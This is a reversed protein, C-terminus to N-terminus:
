RRIVLVKGRRIQTSRLNNTTMIIEVTTHYKKAIGSLTEHNRVRHYILKKRTQPNPTNNIVPSSNNQISRGSDLRMYLNQYLDTNLVLSDKGSSSLIGISNQLAEFFLNGKLTYGKMTLHIGDRQALGNAQWVNMTNIGGSVNFWDYFLCGQDFAIKRVLASFLIGSKLNKRYRFMDQTTTLLISAQPAAFRIKNITEIIISEMKDPIYDKYLYDNTGFDVIALDIDLHPFHESFLQQEIIASYTAGGIGLNHYVVGKKDISEVSMGYFEFENEFPNQKKLQVTITNGINPLEIEIYPKDNSDVIVPIENGGTKFIIDYSSKSQKCYLKIIRYKENVPTKFNITFSVDSDNTRCTFGSPGLPLKPKPFISNSTKWTGTYSSSFDFASYTRAITYPFIMGRGADGKMAQLGKRVVGTYIDPQVHSDGFHAVNIIGTSDNKWKDFFHIFARKNKYQMYNCDENIFFYKSGSDGSSYQAQLMNIKCFLCMAIVWYKKTDIRINLGMSIKYDRNM